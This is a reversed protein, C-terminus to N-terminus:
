SLLPRAVTIPIQAPLMPVGIAGLIRPLAGSVLKKPQSELHTSTSVINSNANARNRASAFFKSHLLVQGIALVLSLLTLTRSSM